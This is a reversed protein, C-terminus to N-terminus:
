AIRPPKARSPLRRTITIPWSFPSSVAAAEPV